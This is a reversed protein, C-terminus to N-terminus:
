SKMKRELEEYEQEVDRVSQESKKVASELEVKHTNELAELREKWEEDKRLQLKAHKEELREVLEKSEQQLKAEFKKQGELIATQEKTDAIALMKREAEAKELMHQCELDAIRRELTEDAEKKAREVQL